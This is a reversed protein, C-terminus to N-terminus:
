PFVETLRCGHFFSPTQERYAKSGGKGRANALVDGHKVFITNGHPLRFGTLPIHEPKTICPDIASAIKDRAADSPFYHFAQPFASSIGHTPSTAAHTPRTPSFVDYRWARAQGGVRARISRWCSPDHKYPQPAAGGNSFKYSFFFV